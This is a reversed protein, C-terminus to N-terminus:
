MGDGPPPAESVLSHVLQPGVFTTNASQLQSQRWDSKRQREVESRSTKETGDRVRGNMCM